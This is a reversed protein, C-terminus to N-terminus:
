ELVPHHIRNSLAVLGINWQEVAEALCKLDQDPFSHPDADWLIAGYLAKGDFGVFDNRDLRRQDLRVIDFPIGWNKLLSVIEHFENGERVLFGSPDDWQDGIVLLVRAPRFETALALRGFVLV